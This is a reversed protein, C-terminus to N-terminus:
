AAVLRCRDIAGQWNQVLVDVLHAQAIAERNKEVLEKRRAGDNVLDKLANYWAREDDAPVTVIAGPHAEAYEAYPGYRTAVSACGVMGYELMKLDSKSKNFITRELPAGAIDLDMRSLAAYYRPVVANMNEFPSANQAETAGLAGCFELRPWVDQPFLGRLDAGFFSMRVRADERLLKTVPKVITRVDNIHSNTGGYGIRIQALRKHHAVAPVYKSYGEFTERNLGNPCVTIRANLDAYENALAETSVLLGDCLRAAEEFLKTAPKGTGYIHASPNSPSLHRLDDDVDMLIIPAKPTAKIAHMLNVVTPTSVRQFVVVDADFWAPDEATQAGHLEHGAKALESFPLMIRYVGCGGADAASVTIKM